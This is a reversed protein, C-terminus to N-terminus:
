FPADDDLRKPETRNNPSIGQHINFAPAESKSKFPVGLRNFAPTCECYATGTAGDRNKGVALEMRDDMPPHEQYYGDRYLLVVLAADEEIKGTQKLDSLKPRKDTRKEVERNLQCAVMTPLNTRKAVETIGEMCQSVRATEERDVRRDGTSMKHLHDVGLAIVGHTKLARESRVRIQEPTIGSSPDIKLRELRDGIRMICNAALDREQESMKAKLITSYPVGCESAVVRAQVQKVTMEPSFLLVPGHQTLHWMVHVSVISKGIGPRGAFVHPLGPQFTALQDLEPIGFTYFAGPKADTLDTVGDAASILSTPQTYAYLDSVSASITDLLTLADATTYASESANLGIAILRRQIHSEILIRAHYELNATSNVGNTLQSVYTAGGVSDLLGDSRLRTSVTLIDVASGKSWLEHAVRYIQRNPEDHFLEAHLLDVCKPWAEGTLLLAGLVVREVEPASPTARVLQLKPANIM